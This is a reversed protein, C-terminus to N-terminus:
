NTVKSNDGVTPDEPLSITKGKSIVSLSEGTFTDKASYNVPLLLEAREGLQDVYPKIKVQFAVERPATLVGTGAEVNGVDWIVSNTRENYTLPANEPFIKGTMSVATPLVAAVKAGTIDNSVNSLFYHITYTTEEGIRPPIPGSNPINADTYYGKIDLFLKSNLKLDMKNGAVIKNMHVPTPIDPSDIKVLSSIVFNKDNGGFVPIVEKVQISFKIKGEQGPALNKLEKHDSAKWTITKNRADYYGGETQLGQYDLVPSDLYETVIVDRLGLTGQNKYKIEFNLNQGASVNLSSLENVTQSIIFPSTVIKTQASEENYSVFQGDENAGLLVRVTGVEDQNGELKGSVVIKGSQGAPVEGIYWINNGELPRPDASSFTFREPYDIKIRINDFVEQGNNKYTILYNVQDQSSINQPAIVELSMPSSEINVQLAGNKTFTGSTTSPKYALDAKLSIFAGKASYIRGNFVVKGEANGRIAGLEFIGSTTGEAKFKANGDPKFEAPYSVRLVVNELNARNNNKYKIEYTVLSGSRITTPGEIFVEVRDNSFFSDRILYFAGLSFVFVLLAALVYAGKKVISKEEKGLFVKQEEWSDPRGFSEGAKKGNQRPDFETEPHRLVEPDVEQGYLEEQIKKLSM